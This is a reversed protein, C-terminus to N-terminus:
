SVPKGGGGPEQPCALVGGTGLEWGVLHACSLSEKMQRRPGGLERAGGGRNDQSPPCPPGRPNEGELFQASLGSVRSGAPCRPGELSQCPPGQPVAGACPAPGGARPAM